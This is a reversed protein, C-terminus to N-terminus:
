AKAQTLRGEGAAPAMISLTRQAGQRLVVLRIEPLRALVMVRQLDDLTLIPNDDASLLLDNPALGAEEAPTGQRVEFVRVARRSGAALAEDGALEEGRAGIGLFPRQVVVGPADPGLGGM